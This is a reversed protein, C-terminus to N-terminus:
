SLAIRSPGRPVIASPGPALTKTTRWPRTAVRGPVLPMRSPTVRAVNISSNARSCPMVTSSRSISRVSSYTASSTKKQPLPASPAVTAVKRAGNGAYYGIRYIDLRYANATTKAKFRVTTGKNVSIDTAFGQISADGAGAIVQVFFPAGLLWAVERAETLAPWPEAGPPEAHVDRCVETRTAEDALAPFFDGEGGGHGLVPDYRRGTLIVAQDADVLTRNLYVARGGATGALYSLRRRDGPEHEELTVGVFRDRV